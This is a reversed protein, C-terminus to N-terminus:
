LDRACWRLNRIAQEENFFHHGVALGARVTSMVKDFAQPSTHIRTGPGLAAALIVLV